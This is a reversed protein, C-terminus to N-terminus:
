HSAGESFPLIARGTFAEIVRGIATVLGTVSAVLAAAFSAAYAWWIPFQLLFTTEGYALKAQMGAYLRWTILILVLAFIVEWFARILRNMRRSLASTFIDVTAHSSYFQAIPLFAFIAFAVGAEVLEFDGTIPSDALTRGMVSACTLLVLATLVLGGALAMLQAIREIVNLM